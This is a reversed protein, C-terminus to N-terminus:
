CTECAVEQRVSRLVPSTPSLSVVEIAVSQWRSRYKVTSRVLRPVAVGLRGGGRARVGPCAPASLHVPVCSWHGWERGVLVAGHDTLVVFSATQGGGQRSGAM